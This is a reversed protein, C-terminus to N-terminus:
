LNKAAEREDTIFLAKSTTSLAGIFAAGIIGLLALGMVVEILTFGKQGKM